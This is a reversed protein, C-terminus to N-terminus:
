RHKRGRCDREPWDFRSTHKLYRSNRACVAQGLRELESLYGTGGFSNSSALLEYSSPLGSFDVLREAIPIDTSFDTSAESTERGRPVVLLAEAPPVKVAAPTAPARSRSFDRIRPVSQSRDHTPRSRRKESRLTSNSAPSKSTLSEYPDSSEEPPRPPPTPPALSCPPLEGSKTRRCFDVLPALVQHVLLQVDPPAGGVSPIRHLRPGPPRALATAPSSTGFLSAENVAVLSGRQSSESVVAPPRPSNAGSEYSSNSSNATFTSVVEIEWPDIHTHAHSWADRCDQCAKRVCYGCAGSAPHFPRERTEHPSRRAYHEYHISSIVSSGFGNSVPAAPKTAGHYQQEEHFRVDCVPLAYDEKPARRRKALDQGVQAYSTPLIDDAVTLRGRPRLPSEMWSMQADAGQVVLRSSKLQSPTFKTPISSTYQVSRWGFVSSFFVHLAMCNPSNVEALKNNAWRAAPFCGVALTHM